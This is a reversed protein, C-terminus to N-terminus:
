ISILLILLAYPYIKKFIYYIIPDIINNNIKNNTYDKLFTTLMDIYSMKTYNNINNNDEVLPQLKEYSEHIDKFKEEASADHPNKDPHYKLAMIHYQKKLEHKTFPYNLELNILYKDYSM